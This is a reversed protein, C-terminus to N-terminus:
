TMTLDRARARPRNRVIHVTNTSELTKPLRARAVFARRLPARHVLTPRAGIAIFFMLCLCGCIGGKKNGGGESSDNFSQFTSSGGLSVGAVDYPM